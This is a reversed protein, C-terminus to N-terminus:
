FKRKLSRLSANLEFGLLLINSNLWIYLMLILLAGISGYLENYQSFNEIYVGFFYSTLVFLITTLLAGPSFFRTNKGEATGFYYLISTFLYAIFVFFLYKGMNIWLEVNEIYGGKSLRDIIDTQFFIFAAVSFLLLLAMIVAVGLAIFYQRIVNRSIKVHYSTEFGGFVANIGNTMLFISLVFVSSLLSGRKKGAIDSFIPNFYSATEPPLLGDIFQLFQTQFDKIPVYPILNLVFLLFPFIAMFFSFSIASARYTLAGKVIGLVYMELLDYVSLGEFARLKIKKFFAVLLNIVPIKSLKEEIELSM